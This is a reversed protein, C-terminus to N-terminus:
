LEVAALVLLGAQVASDRGPVRVPVIVEIEQTTTPVVSSQQAAPLFLAPDDNITSANIPVFGHATSVPKDGVPVSVLGAMEQWAVAVWPVHRTTVPFFAQSVRSEPEAQDFDEKVPIELGMRSPTLQGVVDTQKAVAPPVPTTL